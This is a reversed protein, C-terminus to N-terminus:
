FQAKFRFNRSKTNVNLFKYQITYIDYICKVFLISYSTKHINCCLCFRFSMRKRSPIHLQYVNISSFSYALSDLNQSRCNPQEKKAMLHSPKARAKEDDRGM